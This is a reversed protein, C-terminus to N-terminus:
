KLFNVDEINNGNESLKLESTDSKVTREQDERIKAKISRERRSPKEEDHIELNHEKENTEDSKLGNLNKGTQNKM